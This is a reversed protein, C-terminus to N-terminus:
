INTIANPTTATNAVATNAVATNTDNAFAADSTITDSTTNATATDSTNAVATNQVYIHIRKKLAVLRSLSMGCTKVVQRVNGICENVVNLVKINAERLSDFNDNTNFTDNTNVTNNGNNSNNKVMNAKNLKISEDCEKCHSRYKKKKMPNDLLFDDTFKVKQCVLCRRLVEKTNPKTNINSTKHKTESSM